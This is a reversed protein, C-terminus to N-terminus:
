PRLDECSDAVQVCTCDAKPASCEWYDVMVKVTVAEMSEEIEPISLPHGCTTAPETEGPWDPDCEIECSCSWKPNDYMDHSECGGLLLFMLLLGVVMLFVLFLSGERDRM